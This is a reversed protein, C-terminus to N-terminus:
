AENNVVVVESKRLISTGRLYGHRLEEAITGDARSPDAVTEVAKHWHPDFGQDLNRIPTVGQEDLINDLLRRVTRFNGLWIKMQKTVQDEKEKAARFVREFGDIAELIQLLLRETRKEQAREAEALSFRLEAIERMLRGIDSTLVEIAPADRDAWAVLPLPTEDIPLSRRSM